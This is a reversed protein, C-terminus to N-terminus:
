HYYVGPINGLSNVLDTSPPADLFLWRPDYGPVTQRLFLDKNIQQLIPESAPVGDAAHWRNYM